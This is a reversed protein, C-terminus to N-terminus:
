LRPKAVLPWTAGDELELRVTVREDHPVNVPVVSAEGGLMVVVPPLVRRWPAEDAVHLAKAVQEEDGAEVGLAALVAVVTEVPVQRTEGQWDSFETAVGYRDALQVLGQPLM